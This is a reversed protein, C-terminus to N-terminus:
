SAPHMRQNTTATRAGRHRGARARRQDAHARVARALVWAGSSLHREEYPSLGRNAGAWRSLRLKVCSFPSQAFVFSPAFVFTDICHPRRAAQTGDPGLFALSAKKCGVIGDTGAERKGMACGEEDESCFLRFHLVSGAPQRASISAPQANSSLRSAVTLSRRLAVRLRFLRM